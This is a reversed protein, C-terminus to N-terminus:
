RLPSWKNNYSIYLHKLLKYIHSENSDNNEIIHLTGCGDKNITEKIREIKETVTQQAKLRNEIEVKTYGRKELRNLRIEYLCEVSILNNNVFNCLGMEVFLASNILVVGELNFLRKRLTHMMPEHMIEEFLKRAKDAEKSDFIIRILKKIDIRSNAQIIKEGFNSIFFDNLKIRINLHLSETSNALIYRGIEDMDIATFPTYLQIGPDYKNKPDKKALEIMKNTIYTKGSGIGGTVGILLQSSIKRELAEKVILPVYEGVTKAQHGQLEKVASSSIHSLKQDAVLIFTDLNMQLGHNIDTLMREFDFDMSNRAGRIIVEVQNEYAFDALLGSYSKVTIENQYKQLARQTLEEREKLTFCYKKSPNVGIGIILHDFVKLAREIVNIHGYTIPDYSAAIIAKKM